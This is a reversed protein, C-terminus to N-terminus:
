ANGGNMYPKFLAYVTSIRPTPIDVEVGIRQLSGFIGEVEMRKGAILDHYMSSYLDAPFTDTLTLSKEVIDPSISVGKRTGLAVVEKMIKIGLKRIDPDDYLQRAPKRAIVTLAATSVLQVTKEWLASEIDLSVKAEIKAAECIEAFGTARESKKGDSEGFIISGAGNPSRAFGLREIKASVYAAGGLVRNRGILKRIIESGSIGNM